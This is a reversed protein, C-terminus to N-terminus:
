AVYGKEALRLALPKYENHSGYLWGGGHIIVVAPFPGKGRTPVAVNVKLKCNNADCFTLDSLLKVGAPVAIEAPASQQGYVPALGLCGFFVAWFLTLAGRALSLTHCM